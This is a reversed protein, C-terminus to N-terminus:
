PMYPALMTQLQRELMAGEQEASVQGFDLAGAPKCAFKERDLRCM